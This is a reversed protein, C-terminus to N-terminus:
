VLYPAVTIVGPGRMNYDAKTIAFSSHDASTIKAMISAGLYTNLDDRGKFDAFYDPVRLVKLASASPQLENYDGKSLYPAIHPALLQNFGRAGALPGALVLGNLIQPRLEMECQNVSNMIAEPLTVLTQEEDVGQLGKLLQMNFLPEWFRQRMKGVSVTSGRWQIQFRGQAAAANNEKADKENILNQEQGSVLAAAIDLEEGKRKKKEKEDEEPLLSLSAPNKFLEHAIEVLADFQEHESLGSLKDHSLLQTDNKLLRALYISLERIGFKWHTASTYQPMAELVPVIDTSDYGVDIFLGNVSGTAYLGTVPREVLAFVPVNFREFFIQTIRESEDKSLGHPVTVLVLATAARANGLLQKLTYKWIAEAGIWDQIRGDRWPYSIELQEGAQLSDQLQQGVLYSSPRLRMPQKEDVEMKEDLDGNAISELTSKRVGVKAEFRLEPQHFIEGVPKGALITRGTEIVIINSERMQSSPSPSLLHATICTAGLDSFLAQSMDYHNDACAACKDAVYGYSTKGNVNFGMWQGCPIPSNMGVAIFRDNNNLMQGCAGANGTQSDYWTAMNGYSDASRKAVPADVHTPAAVVLSAIAAVIISKSFM